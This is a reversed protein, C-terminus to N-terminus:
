YQAGIHPVSVLEEENAHDVNDFRVTMAMDTIACMSNSIGPDFGHFLGVADPWINIWVGNL